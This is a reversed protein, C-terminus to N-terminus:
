VNEEELAFTKELTKKNRADAKAQLKDHKKVLTSALKVLIPILIKIIKLFM